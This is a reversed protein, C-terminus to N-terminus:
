RILERTRDTICWEFVQNKKARLTQVFPLLEEGPIDDPRIVDIDLIISVHKEDPPPATTQSIIVYGRIDELPLVVRFFYETMTQPLEPAVEPTTRFYTKLDDVPLPLNIQNIFRMGVRTYRRPRTTGRYVDWLRKAEGFFSEWGPYPALRNFTFGSFQAQFLQKEDASKFVYGSPASSVSATAKQGMEIRGHHEQLSACEPYDKAVQRQCKRLKDLPFRDPLEVKIDLIAERIPARSYKTGTEM